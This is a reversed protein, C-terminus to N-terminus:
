HRSARQLGWHRYGAVNYPWKIADVSITQPSAKVAIKVPSV